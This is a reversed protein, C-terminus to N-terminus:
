VFVLVILNSSVIIYFIQDSVKYFCKQLVLNFCFFLVLMHSSPSVYSAYRDRM